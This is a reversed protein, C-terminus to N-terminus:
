RRRSMLYIYIYIYICIYNIIKSARLQKSQHVVKLGLPEHTMHRRLYSVSGSMTVSAIAEEDLLRETMYFKNLFLDFGFPKTDKPSIWVIKVDSGDLNARQIVDRRSDIWYLYGRNLDLALGDPFEPSERTGTHIRTRQKGDLRSREIIGNSIGWDSFYVHRLKFIM